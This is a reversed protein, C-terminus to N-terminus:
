HWTTFSISININRVPMCTIPLLTSTLTCCHWFSAIGNQEVDYCVPIVSEVFLISIMGEHRGARKRISTEVASRKGCIVFDINRLLSWNNRIAVSCPSFQKHKV